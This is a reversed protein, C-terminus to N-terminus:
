SYQYPDVRLHKHAEDILVLAQITFTPHWVQHKIGMAQEKPNMPWSPVAFMDIGGITRLEIDSVKVSSTGNGAQYEVYIKANNDLTIVCLREGFEALFAKLADNTM